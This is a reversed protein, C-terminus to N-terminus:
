EAVPLEYKATSLWLVINHLDAIIRWLLWEISITLVQGDVFCEIQETLSSSRKIIESDLFEGFLM